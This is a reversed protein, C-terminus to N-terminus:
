HSAKSLLAEVARAVALLNERISGVIFREATGNLSAALFRPVGPVKSADISLAGELRVRTGSGETVFTNHGECTVAGPLAHVHITYDVTHSALTWTAFDTWALMDDSLVRRVVGPIDGGGVWENVFRVVRAEGEGSEERSKVMIARINPLHPVCEVIRERYVEFVQPLPYPVVVEASFEM